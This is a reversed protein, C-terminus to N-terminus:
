VLRDTPLYSAGRHAGPGDQLDEAGSEFPRAGVLTASRRTSARRRSGRSANSKASPAASSSRVARALTAANASVRSRGGRARRARRATAQGRPQEARVDRQRDQEPRGPQGAHHVRRALRGHGAGGRRRARPKTQGHMDLRGSVRPLGRRAPSTGARRAARGRPSRGAARGPPRRPSRPAPGSRRCAAGRPQALAVQAVAEAERRAGRRRVDAVRDRVRPPKAGSSARPARAPPRARRREGPQGRRLAAPQRWSNSGWRAQASSSRRRARQGPGIAASPRAAGRRRRAARGVAAGVAHDDGVVAPALEVAHGGRQVRERGDGLRQGAAAHLHQEVAAHAAAGVDHARQREPASPTSTPRGHHQASAAPPSAPTRRSSSIRRESRSRVSM